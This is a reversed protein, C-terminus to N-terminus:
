RSLEGGIHAAAAELAPVAALMRPRGLRGSPGAMALSAVAEDGGRRVPVAISCRDVRHELECLAYGRDRVQELEVELERPDVVTRDTFRVLPAALAAQRRDESAFALLAKGAATAHLPARRGPQSGIVPAFAPAVGDVYLVANDEVIGLVVTEQLQEALSDVQPRAVRVLDEKNLLSAGLEYLGWDLSYMGRDADRAVIQRMQLTTLINYTATKSLGTRRALESVGVFQRGSEALAELIDIGHLLAQVRRPERADDIRDLAHSTQGQHAVSIATM